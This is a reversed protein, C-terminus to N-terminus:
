VDWAHAVLVTDAASEEDVALDIAHCWNGLDPRNWSAPAIRPKLGTTRGCDRGTRRAPATSARSSSM